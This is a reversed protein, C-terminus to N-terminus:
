RKNGRDKTNRGGWQCCFLSHLKNMNGHQRHLLAFCRQIQIKRLLSGIIRLFFPSHELDLLDGTGTCRDHVPVDRGSRPRTPLPARCCQNTAATFHHLCTIQLYQAFSLLHCFPFSQATFRKAWSICTCRLQLHYRPRCAFGAQVFIFGRLVPAKTDFVNKSSHSFCQYVHIHKDEPCLFALNLVTLRSSHLFAPMNCNTRKGPTTARSFARSFASHEQRSSCALLCVSPFKM